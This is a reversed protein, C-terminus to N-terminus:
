AVASEGASDQSKGASQVTGGAPALTGRRMLDLEWVPGALFSLPDEDFAPRNKEFVSHGALNSAWGGVFSALAPVYIPWTFPIFPSSVMLGLTGGVIFPTGLVHLTRNVRNQHTGEYYVLSHAWREAFTGSFARKERWRAEMSRMSLGFPILSLPGAGLLLGAVGAAGLVREKRKTDSM